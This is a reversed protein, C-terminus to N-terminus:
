WVPAMMPVASAAVPVPVIGAWVAIPMATPRGAASSSAESSGIPRNRGV